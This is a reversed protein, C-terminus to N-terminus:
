SPKEGGDTPEEPLTITASLMQVGASMTEHGYWQDRRRVTKNYTELCSVLYEALIFDPTDGDNELSHCNVFREFHKVLNERKIADFEETMRVAIEEVTEREDSM